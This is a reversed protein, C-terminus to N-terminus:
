SRTQYRREDEGKMWVWVDGAMSKRTSVVSVDDQILRLDNRREGFCQRKKLSARGSMM